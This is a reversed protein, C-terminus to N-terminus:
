LFGCVIRDNNNNNNHVKLANLADLRVVNNGNNDERGCESSDNLLINM